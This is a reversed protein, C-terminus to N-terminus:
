DDVASERGHGVEVDDWDFGFVNPRPCGITASLPDGISAAESEGRVGAPQIEEM